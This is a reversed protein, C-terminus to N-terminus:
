TWQQLHLDNYHGIVIFSLLGTGICIIHVVVIGSCNFHQKLYVYFCFSIFMQFIYRLLRVMKSPLSSISFLLADLQLWHIQILTQLKLNFIM